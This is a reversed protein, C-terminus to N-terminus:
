DKSKMSEEIAIRHKNLNDKFAEVFKNLWPALRMRLQGSAEILPREYITYPKGDTGESTRVVMLRYKGQKDHEDWKLYEKVEDGSDPLHFTFAINLPIGSLTREITRIDNSVSDLLSNIDISESALAQLNIKSAM